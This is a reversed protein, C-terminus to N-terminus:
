DNDITVLIEGTNADMIDAHSFGYESIYWSAREIITDLSDTMEKYFLDDFTITVRTTYLYSITM